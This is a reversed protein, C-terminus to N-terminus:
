KKKTTTSRKKPKIEESESEEQEEFVVKKKKTEIVKAAIQSRIDSIMRKKEEQLDSVMQNRLKIKEKELRETFKDKHEFFMDRFKIIESTLEHISIIENIDLEDYVAEEMVRALLPCISTKFQGNRSMEEYIDSKSSVPKLILRQPQDELMNISFYVFIKNINIQM